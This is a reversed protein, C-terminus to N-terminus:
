PWAGSSQRAPPWSSKPMASAGSTAYGAVAFALAEKADADLLLADVAHVIAGPLAVQIMHTLTLNRAGGGSLLVADVSGCYRRYSDAISEATFATLQCRWRTGM